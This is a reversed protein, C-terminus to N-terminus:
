TGGFDTVAVATPRLGVGCYWRERGRDSAPRIAKLRPVVARINKGLVQKTGCRQHGQESSWLCWAQYLQDMSVRCEEGVVCCERVFAIVPSALDTLETVADVASAPQIFHQREQMRRWGEVAWHFVQPLEALLKGTLDIDENGLFSRELRLIIFRSALAGSSDGLRPLENSLILFRTPLKGTWASQYKRDITIADEGSISLLREVVAQQDSRGSLRADSIIALPKGILPALGFNTQLSALTPAGVNCRGLLAALVRALTGKGSRPPGIVLFMKHQRTDPLLMYGFIDQLTEISERDDPWLESLFRFFQQPPQKAGHDFDLDLAYTCFFRPTPPQLKMTPLHVLGNRCPLIETAPPDDRERKLWVPPAEQGLVHQTARLADVVKDVKAKDPKYEELIEEEGRKKLYQFPELFLYLEARLRDAECVDFCRGNWVYFDGMHYILAGGEATQYRTNCFRRAAVLPDDPELLELEGRGARGSNLKQVTGVANSWSTDFYDRGREAFKSKDQVLEWAKDANVDARILDCLVGFDVESREGVPVGELRALISPLSVPDSKSKDTKPKSKGGPLRKPTARAIEAFEEFEYRQDQDCKLLRCEVPQVGNRANKVNLLGPLRLLRALDQTHDGGISKSVTRIVSEIQAVHRKRESDPVWVASSKGYRDKVQRQSAHGRVVVRENLLWYLHVGYGSNVVISPEPLGAETVRNMADDSTCEDLDAWLCPVVDVVYKQGKGRCFTKPRPCVSYFVNAHVGVTSNYQTLLPWIDTTPSNPFRWGLLGGNEEIWADLPHFSRSKKKGNSEWTEILRFEICDGPRFIADIMAKPESPMCTYQNQDTQM